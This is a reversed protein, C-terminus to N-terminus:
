DPRNDPAKKDAPKQRDQTDQGGPKRSLGSFRQRLHRGLNNASGSYNPMACSTLQRTLNAAQQRTHKVPACEAFPQLTKEYARIGLQRVTGWTAGISGGVAMGLAEGVRAGIGAIVMIPTYIGDITGRVIKACLGHPNDDEQGMLGKVFPAAVHALAGTGALALMGTAIAAGPTALLCAVTGFVGALAGGIVNGCIQGVAAGRACRAAIPHDQFQWYSSYEPKEGTLRLFIGYEDPQSRCNSHYLRYMSDRFFSRTRIYEGLM